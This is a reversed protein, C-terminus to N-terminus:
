STNLFIWFVATIKYLNCVKSCHKNVGNKRNIMSIKGPFIYLGIGYWIIFFKKWLTVALGILQKLRKSLSWKGIQGSDILKISIVEIPKKEWLINNWTM